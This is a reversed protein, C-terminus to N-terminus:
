CYCSLGTCRETCTDYTAADSEASKASSTVPEERLDLDDFRLETPM